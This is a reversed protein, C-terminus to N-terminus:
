DMKRKKFFRQGYNLLVERHADNSSKLIRKIAGSILQPESNRRYASYGVAVYTSTAESAWACHFTSFLHHSLINVETKRYKGVQLDM